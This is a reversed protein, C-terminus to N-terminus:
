TTQPITSDAYRSRHLRQHEQDLHFRWYESFYELVHVFDCLVTLKVGHSGAAAKMCDIQHNNGDLLAVWDREHGPDRRHAEEFLEGVVQAPDDTLSATLWRAPRPPGQSPPRASPAQKPCSTPQRARLPAPTTSLASGRSGSATSVGRSRSSGGIWATERTGGSSGCEFSIAMQARHGIAQLWM